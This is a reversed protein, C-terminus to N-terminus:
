EKCTREEMLGGPLLELPGLLNSEPVPLHRMAEAFDPRDLRVAAVQWALRRQAPVPRIQPKPWTDPNVVYPLLYDLGLEVSRGEPTVFHWLDQGWHHAIECIIAFGEMNGLSYGLSSTRREEWPCSGDPEMQDPLLVKCYHDLLDDVVEDKGVLIAYTAVQAVYYTAHNNRTNREDIGQPHTTLWHVFDSFWEGLAAPQAEPWAPTRALFTLGHVLGRLCTADIIGIGRGDCHGKIAQAYRMNPNMRTADDVFWSRLFEAAKRGYSEEDLYYAAMSLDRVANCLASMARHHAYFLDPNIEGDRRIYPDDPNDPDPWWYAGESFYDHPDGSAAPSPEFTVSWPGQTMAEDARARLRKVVEAWPGSPAALAQKVAGVHEASVYIFAPPPSSPDAM